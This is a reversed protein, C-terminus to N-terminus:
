NKETKLLSIIQEALETGIRDQAELTAAGIHPTLSIKPHMLVQIAPKPEEEFVDLGAFAVKGSDLADVLAVEDLIGGRAANIIGVGDKMMSFEKEGILYGDQAPVHLSIFNAHKFIDEIPETTIEVNIFQGNYFDVRIESNGVFKDSAIVRMGLGLAIRAVSRGIRGFGIIGMTKGRLEIGNAYAKKLSEFSTEGELPMLRNADHLFRVGTFLHAFVLEAVSDSSSAPTSIVHIDKQRAYEVDINDMGVGGRGIIKLGPCADIIDKRVKTASRVLLVGIDNKNIYNAVQEQAVKTTIVEFGNEELKQKGSLSIGDNALIKM